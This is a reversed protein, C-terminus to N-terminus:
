PSSDVRVHYADLGTTNGPHALTYMTITDSNNTFPLTGGLETDNTITSTPDVDDMRYYSVYRKRVGRIMIPGWSTGDEFPTTEPTIINPAGTIRIHKVTAGKRCWFTNNGEVDASIPKRLWSRQVSTTISFSQTPKIVRKRRGIIKYQNRFDDGTHPSAWVSPFLDSALTADVGIIQDLRAIYTWEELILNWQGVNWYTTNEYARKLWVQVNSEPTLGLMEFLWLGGIRYYFQATPYNSGLVLPQTVPSAWDVTQNTNLGHM